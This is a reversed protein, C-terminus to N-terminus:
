SGKFLRQVVKVIAKAMEEPPHEHSVLEEGEASWITRTKDRNLVSIQLTMRDLTITADPDVRSRQLEGNQNRRWVWGGQPQDLNAYQEPAFLLRYDVVLAAPQDTNKQTLGLAALQRNVSERVLRDQLLLDQDHRGGTELAPWAWRYDAFRSVDEVSGQVNQVPVQHCASLLLLLPLCLRLLMTYKSEPM